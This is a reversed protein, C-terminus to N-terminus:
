SSNPLLCGRDRRGRYDKSKFIGGCTRGCTKVKSYKNIKYESSCIPCIKIVKDIGSQRRFESKCNNSCFSTRSLKFSKFEKECVKCVYDKEEARGFRQKLAHERHWKKGEKSAHWAKTLPRGIAALKRMREKNEEINSHYSIHDRGDIMELNEISNNTKDHDKHHIHYGEPIKGYNNMWVWRHARIKPTKSSLWYGTVQDLYFRQGYHYQYM